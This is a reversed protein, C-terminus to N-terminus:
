CPQGLEYIAIDFPANSALLNDGYYHIVVKLVEVATEIQLLLYAPICIQPWRNVV